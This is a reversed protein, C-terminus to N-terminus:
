TEIIISFLFYAELKRIQFCRGNQTIEELVPGLVLFVYCAFGM